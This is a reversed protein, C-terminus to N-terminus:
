EAPKKLEWRIRVKGDQLEESYVKLWGHEIMDMFIAYATEAEANNPPMKSGPIVFAGCAIMM